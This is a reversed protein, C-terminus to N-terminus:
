GGLECPPPSRGDRRRRCAKRRRSVPRDAPPLQDNELSASSEAKEMLLERLTCVPVEVCESGISVMLYFDDALTEGGEESCESLSLRIKHTIHEPM